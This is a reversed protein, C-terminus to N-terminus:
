ESIYVTCFVIINTHLIYWYAVEATLKIVDTLTASPEIVRKHVQIKDGKM